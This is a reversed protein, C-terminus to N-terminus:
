VTDKTIYNEWWQYQFQVTFREIEDQSGWNLAITSISTPFMGVFKYQQTPGGGDNRTMQTVIGEAVYGGSLISGDHQSVTTSHGTIAHAWAEMAHRVKYDEDNIVTISLPSFERDGAYYLKRGFYPVAIHGIKSEPIESIECLFPLITLDERTGIIEMTFQSPRAGGHVLKNRFVNLDFSM